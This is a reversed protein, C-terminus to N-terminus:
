HIFNLYVDNTGEEASDHYTKGPEELRCRMSLSLVHM